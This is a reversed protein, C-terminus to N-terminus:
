WAYCNIRCVLRTSSLIVPAVQPFSCIVATHLEVTFQRCFAIDQMRPLPLLFSPLINDYLPCFVGAYYDLGEAAEFDDPSVSLVPCCLSTLSCTGLSLLLSLEEQLGETCLLDLNMSSTSSVPRALRADRARRRLVVGRGPGREGTPIGSLWNKPQHGLMDQTLGRMRGREALPVRCHLSLFVGFTYLCPLTPPLLLTQLLSM